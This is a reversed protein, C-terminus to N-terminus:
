AASSVKTLKTRITLLKALLADFDAELRLAAAVKKGRVICAEIRSLEALLITQADKRARTPNILAIYAQKKLLRRRITCM